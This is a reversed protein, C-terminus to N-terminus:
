KNQGHWRRWKEIDTGFDQGSLAKLQEVIAKNQDQRYDPAARDWLSILVPVMKGGGHKGICGIAERVFKKVLMKRNRPGWASGGAPNRQPILSKRLVPGPRLQVDEVAQALASLVADDAVTSLAKPLWALVYATVDERKLLQLMARRFGGPDEKALEPQAKVHDMGVLYRLGIEAIRMDDAGLAELALAADTQVPLFYRTADWARYRVEPDPDKRLRAVTGADVYHFYQLAYIGNIRTAPDKSEILVDIESKAPLPKTYIGERERPEEFAFSAHPETQYWYATIAYLFRDGHCCEFTPRISEDFSVYDVIHYYFIIYQGRGYVTNRRRKVRPVCGGTPTSGFGCWASNFYDEFGTGHYYPPWSQGDVFIMADGEGWWGRRTSFLHVNCGLYKGHGRMEGVVWNNAGDTNRRGHMNRGTTQAQHWSAHFRGTNQPLRRPKHYEIECAAKDIRAKGDNRIMIRATNFPLPFYCRYVGDKVSMLLSTYEARNIGNGFFDGVPVDVSPREENDWYMLLRARRQIRDDSSQLFPMELSTIWAPGEMEFLTGTQGPAISISKSVTETGKPRRIRPNQGTQWKSWVSVAGNLAKKDIHSLAGTYSKVREGQTLQVYAIQYYGGTAGYHKIGGVPWDTDTGKIRIICSKEYPIPVYSWHAGRGKTPAGVLPKRFPDKKGGFLDHVSMEISPKDAGDIYILMVGGPAASWIYRVCGPGELKALTAVQGDLCNYEYRGTKLNLFYRNDANGGTRDHTTAWKTTEHTLIPLSDFDTLRNVFWAFDRVAEDGHGHGCWACAVILVGVIFHSRANFVSEVQM